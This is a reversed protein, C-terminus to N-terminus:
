LRPNLTSDLRTGERERRRKEVGCEASRVYEHQALRDRPSLADPVVRLSAIWGVRVTNYDRGGWIQNMLSEGSQLSRNVTQQAAWEGSGQNTWSDDNAASNRKAVKALCAM